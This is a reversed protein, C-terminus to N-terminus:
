QYNVDNTADILARTVERQIAAASEKLNTTHFTLGGKILAEINVTINKVSGGGGAVGALGDKVSGGSSRNAFGKTNKPDFSANPDYLSAPDTSLAVSPAEISPMKFDFLSGIQDILWKIPGILYKDIFDWVGGLWTKASEWIGKFFQGIGPFLKFLAYIAASLALIGLIVAGIPNAWMAANLLIQGIRAANLSAAWGWVATAGLTFSTWATVAWARVAAVNALVSIRLALLRANLAALLNGSLALRVMNWVALGATKSFNLLGVTATQAASWVSIAFSRAWIALDILGNKLEKTLDVLDLWGSQVQAIGSLATKLALYSIAVAAVKAATEAIPGINQQIWALGRSMQDIVGALVPRLREGIDTKFRMFQDSLNSMKGGLTEMIAANTGAVGKMQGFSQIASLVGAETRAVTKTVGRFTLSVKEGETKAKIGLETWRETNNIDLMAETLQGFPKGTASAVDALRQMVTMSPKVGRGALQVFADSLEGLQFPTRQALDSIDELIKKAAGNDGGYINSLVARRKEVDALTDAVQKGFGVVAAGSFAAAVAGGIDGLGAFFNPLANGLAKVFGARPSPSKPGGPSVPARPGNRLASMKARVADIQRQYRQIDAVDFAGRHAARLRKLEQGLEGLSRDARQAAGDFAGVASRSAATAQAIQRMPGSIRDILGFIWSVPRASM